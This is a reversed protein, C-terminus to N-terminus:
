KSELAARVLAKDTKYDWGEPHPGDHGVWRAAANLARTLRAIQAVYEFSAELRANALRESEAAINAIRENEDLLALVGETLALEEASTVNATYKPHGRKVSANRTRVSIALERLKVADPKTTM